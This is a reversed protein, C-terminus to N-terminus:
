LKKSRELKRIEKRSYIDALRIPEPIRFRTCLKIVKLCVGLSILNGQSIYIPKTTGKGGRVAAGLVKGSKRKILIYIFEDQICNLLSDNFKQKIERSNLEDFLLIKKAVGITPQNILIGLHSALGIGNPHLIGNGDVLYVEAKPSDIQKQTLLYREFLKVFHEVERFALFGSIYPVDIKVEISDLYVIKLDLIVDCIVLCACGLTDIEKSISLDFGGVFRIDSNEKLYPHDLCIKERLNDQNQKWKSLM